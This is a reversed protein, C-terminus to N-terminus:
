KQLQKRLAKATNSISDAIKWVEVRVIEAAIRQKELHNYINLLEPIVQIDDPKPMPVVQDYVTFTMKHLAKEISREVIAEIDQEVRKTEAYQGQYIQPVPKGGTNKARNKDRVLAAIHRTCEKCYPQLGDYTTRKKGYMTFTLDRHCKHCHKIGPQADVLPNYLGTKRIQPLVESTVWEMLTDANPKDSRLILRYLGPEDIVYLNQAGGLTDIPNIGKHIDPIKSLAMAVNKLGLIDCVDKAVWWHNGSEDKVVRIQKSEYEFPMISSQTLM